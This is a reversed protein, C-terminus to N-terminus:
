LLGLQWFAFRKLTNLMKFRTLALKLGVGGRVRGGVPGAGGPDPM